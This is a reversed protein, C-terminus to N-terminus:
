VITANSQEKRWEIIRTTSARNIHQNGHSRTSNRVMGIDRDREIPALTFAVMLKLSLKFTKRTRLLRMISVSTVSTLSYHVQQNKDLSQTKVYGNLVNLRLPVIM